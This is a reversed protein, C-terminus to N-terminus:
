VSAEARRRLVEVLRGNKLGYQEVAAKPAAMSNWAAFVRSTPDDLLNVLQRHTNASAKEIHGSGGMLKAFRLAAGGAGWAMRDSLSASRGMPYFSQYCHADRGLAAELMVVKREALRAAPDKPLDKLVARAIRDAFSRTAPVARAAM